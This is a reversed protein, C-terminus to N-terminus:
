APSVSGAPRPGSCMVRLWVVQGDDERVYAQQEYIFPHGDADSGHVRWGVRLTDEVSAPETPDVREVDREPHEFWARLVEEVGAPGDAEWARNPTMARFDIDPHLLGSARSFDRALIADVFGGTVSAPVATM